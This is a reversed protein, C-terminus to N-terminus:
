QEGTKEASEAKVADRRAARLNLYAWGLGVLAVATGVAVITGDPHLAPAPLQATVIVHLHDVGNNYYSGEPLLSVSVNSVATNLQYYTNVAYHMATDNVQQFASAGRSTYGVFYGQVTHFFSITSDYYLGFQASRDLLFSGGEPTNGVKFSGLVQLVHGAITHPVGDNPFVAEQEISIPSTQRTLYDVAGGIATVVGAVTTIKPLLKSRALDTLITKDATAKPIEKIDVMTDNHIRIEGKIFINRTKHRAGPAIGAARPLLRECAVVSSASAVPAPAGSIIDSRIVARTSPTRALLPTGGISLQPKPLM